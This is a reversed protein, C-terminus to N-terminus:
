KWAPLDLTFRAGQGPASDVVIDGGMARALRRSIYLGLGSGGDGSLGLREFREFIREHDAADIGMGQDAVIARARDEEDDVRVWIISDEPSHRVANGILNVLIQLVRRYEARAVVREGLAPTQIRVRRAGAKVGLLGAARRALDTLDVEEQAATFGPREIAQLDALDDVLELLHRGAAAIDAAYDAYDQRLPGEKQDGITSANAIIRGIPQRLVQDLRRGLEPGLISVPEPASASAAGRGPDPTGEIREARGHYGMLAGSTDFLPEGALRYRIARDARLRVYQDRFPLRMALAELLPMIAGAPDDASDLEFYATLPQGAHPPEHGISEGEPEARRFRLRIDTQWPWGAGPDLTAGLWDAPSQDRPRREQWDILSVALGDEEPRLQAWASVDSSGLPLEVARSIPIRLRQALRVLAAIPLLAIPGDPQGGADRQLLLLAPDARVIRGDRDLVAQVLGDVVPASM